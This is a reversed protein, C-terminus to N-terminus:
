RSLTGLMRDRMEREERALEAKVGEIIEKARQRDKAVWNTRLWDRLDEVFKGEESGFEDEVFPQSSDLVSMALPQKIETHFKKSDEDFLRNLIRAHTVDTANKMGEADGSM